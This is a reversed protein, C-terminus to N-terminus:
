AQGASCRATSASPWLELGFRALSNGPGLLLRNRRRMAPKCLRRYLDLHQDVMADVSFTRRAHESMENAQMEFREYGALVEGIASALAKSSNPAVVKGFGALQERIGGVDSAVVPTGCLMAETVVNPLAETSSPLVLLDSSRYLRSLEEPSKQGAFQVRDGIGLQAALSRLQAELGASQYVLTVNLPLPIRAVAELLVDVRKLPILQGVFLIRWPTGAVRRVRGQMTYTDTSVGNSIVASTEPGLRYKHEQYAKERASLAISFDVRRLVFHMVMRSHAPLSEAMRHPTFVFAASSSDTAARIAGWSLHHVHVVDFSGCDIPSFHSFTSVDVGRRRLGDELATEPAIRHARRYAEPKGYIGGVIAVRM